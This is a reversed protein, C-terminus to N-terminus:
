LGNNLGLVNVLERSSDLRGVLTDLEEEFVSGCHAVHILDKIDQLKAMDQITIDVEERTSLQLSEGDSC